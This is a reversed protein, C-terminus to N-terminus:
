APHGRGAVLCLKVPKGVERAILVAERVYDQITGRRGFGGGLLTPPGRGQRRPVGAALAATVLATSPAQTPVWIEVADSRVDAACTQPEMTAHALFPM